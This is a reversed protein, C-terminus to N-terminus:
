KRRRHVYFINRVPNAYAKGGFKYKQLKIDEFIKKINIV